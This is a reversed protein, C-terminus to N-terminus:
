NLLPFPGDLSLQISFNLCSSSKLRLQYFIPYDNFM